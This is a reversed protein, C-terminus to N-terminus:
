DRPIKRLFYFRSSSRPCTKGFSLKAFCEIVGSLYVKNKARLDNKPTRMIFQLEAPANVANSRTDGVYKRVSLLDVMSVCLENTISVSESASYEAAPISELRRMSKTRISRQKTWDNHRKRTCDIASFIVSM